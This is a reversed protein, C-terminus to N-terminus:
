LECAHLPGIDARASVGEAPGAQRATAQSEEPSSFGVLPVDAIGLEKFWRIYTAHGAMENERRVSEDSRVACRRV